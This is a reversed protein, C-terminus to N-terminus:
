KKVKEVAKKRDSIYKRFKIPSRDKQANESYRLAKEQPTEEWKDDTNVPIARVSGGLGLIRWRTTEVEM